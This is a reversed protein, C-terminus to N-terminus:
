PQTKKQAIRTLIRRYESLLRLSEFHPDKELSDPQDFGKDVAKRLSELAGRKDAVVAQASALATWSQPYEPHIETILQLRDIMRRFEKHKQLDPIEERLGIYTQVLFRRAATRQFGAVEKESYRRAQQIIGRAEAMAAVRAGGSFGALYVRDEDISFRSHAEDWLARAAQIVPELPGNRSNNSGMLIVGYQEAGARFCELPRRGRAGPDFAFLIPCSHGPQYQAPLYLAYSQDSYHLCTVREIIQGAPFDAALLDFNPLPSLSPILELLILTILVFLHVNMM